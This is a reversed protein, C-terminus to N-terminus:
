YASVRSSQGVLDSYHFGQWDLDQRLAYKWDLRLAAMQAAARDSVKEVFQFVTVLCLVVPNIGSRGEIAYM